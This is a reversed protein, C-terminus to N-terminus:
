KSIYRYRYRQMCVNGYICVYRSRSCLGSSAEPLVETEADAVKPRRKLEQEEPGPVECHGMTLPM